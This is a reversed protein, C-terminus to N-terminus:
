APRRRGSRSVADRLEGDLLRVPNRRDALIQAALGDLNEADFVFDADNVIEHVAINVLRIRRARAERLESRRAFLQENM